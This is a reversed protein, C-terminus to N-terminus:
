KPAVYSKRARSKVGSRAVKVDIHHVKGDHKPPEYGLLYQSHLEDVVRTFAAALDQGYRIETYGGGSEEAVKALGPDPLDETLAARLGGLGPQMQPPRESRSRMGVAYIMVDDKRARDIIEAPSVLKKSFTTMGTDQGDTLVLVIRRKDAGDTFLDMAQDVARWLPTPAEPDIERPLSALLVNADHTFEPSIDVQKGFTGLRAVDDAGLRMLLQQSAGRLLPLNGHMSGSVDLLTILEIPKPSNDFVSIPQPKGEDRAEFEKQTLDTVLHGDHDTATVFVRVIESTSRIVPGQQAALAATLGVCGAVVSCTVFRTM